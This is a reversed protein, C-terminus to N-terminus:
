ENFIPKLEAELKSLLNKDWDMSDAIMVWFETNYLNSNKSLFMKAEEDTVSEQLYDSVLKAYLTSIRKGAKPPKTYPHYSKKGLGVVCCLRYFMAKNKSKASFDKNITYNTMEVNYSDKGGSLFQMVVFPNLDAQQEPSLSDFWDYDKIDIHYLVDKIDLKNSM